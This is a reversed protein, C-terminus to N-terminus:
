YDNDDGARNYGTVTQWAIGQLAKAQDAPLKLWPNGWFDDIEGTLGVPNINYITAIHVMAIFYNGVRNMHIDDEFIDSLATIGPVRGAAIQKELELLALAAPIIYVRDDSPATQAAVYDAVGELGLRSFGGEPVEYPGAKQVVFDHPHNKGKLDVLIQQRWTTQEWSNKGQWGKNKVSPWVQYLYARATPNHKRALKYFNAANDHTQAWDLQSFVPVAPTLVIVDFRGTPLGQEPNGASTSKDWDMSDPDNRQAWNTKLNAGPRQQVRYDHKISPHNKLAHHIIWPMDDNVLSHGVYFVNDAHAAAPLMPMFLASLIALRITLAPLRRSM